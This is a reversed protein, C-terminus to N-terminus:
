KALFTRPHKEWLWSACRFFIKKSGKGEHISRAHFIIKLTRDDSGHMDCLERKLM